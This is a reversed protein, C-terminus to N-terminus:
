NPGPRWLRGGGLAQTYDQIATRMEDLNGWFTSIQSAHCAVSDTWAKLGAESVPYQVSEWGLARLRELEPANKLVYPYDPYYCLSRGSREAAQRTLLHDVHRGLALPCVLRAGEPLNKVLEMSLARSLDEDAQHLGGWLAEETPYLPEDSSRYICDPISFHRYNAGLAHCAHIDEGRRTVVPSLGVGWRAHLSRAFPTLEALRPEGACITWISVPQGAQGLEWVLGGCSLAVDDFHPSLYVWEVTWIKVVFKM